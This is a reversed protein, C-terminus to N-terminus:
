LPPLPRRCQPCINKIALWRELCATHFLHHCPALSYSKRAGGVKGLIGGARGLVPREKVDTSKSRRQLSPDVLIADMCIACDGLTQEPAEPDPLPLPPHYDYTQAPSMRKPLFFAPDVREQLFIICVQALMFLGVFYIWRRPEVDLINKPCALFYCAFFLRGLTTGVLYEVSLGSSRSRRVSRYIQMLWMCSYLSGIFFLPLSLAIVVRFVVMLSLSLITWLRAAPDTRIHTWLFQWFSPREPLTPAPPPAPPEQPPPVPAGEARDGVTGTQQPTPVPAPAPAPPPTPRSAPADEPAQIQGILVAMQAEYVFLLCALGAPALVSLSPRGEALIGLTIHGIFSIADILSQILFTYRSVRSLGIASSSEAAQRRFLALLVLNVLTSIGSYFTIKRYLRQSRLARHTPNWATLGQQLVWQVGLAHKMEYLIGCDQSLLVGDLSFEPSKVTTIGTPEDIEGELEDMLEKPVDSGELQAFLKFSCKTKPSEDTESSEQDFSGSEIKEQLKSIRYALEIEVARASDNRFKEPVLAPLDRIDMGRGTSEAHAYVAGTSLVHIGEFDLRLEESSEPDSLDVKGHIIAVNKNNFGDHEFPVLKDGVSLSVRNSRTWNWSGLLDPIATLNTSVMFQESLHRWSSTAESTNLNTLNHAQLDGHWFGTMNSYYSGREPDLEPGFNLFADVLPMMNPDAIPLSYNSTTGNLWATYNALQRNLSNLGNLYQDRVLTVDDGRGSTLMFLVFTIFLFSPLSSRQQRPAEAGNELDVPDNNPTSM